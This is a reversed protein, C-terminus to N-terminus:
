GQRAGSQRRLSVEVLLCSSCQQHQILHVPARAATRGRPSPHTYSVQETTSATFTSRKLFSPKPKVNSSGSIFEPRCSRTRQCLARTSLWPALFVLGIAETTSFARPASSRGLLRSLDLAAKQGSYIHVMQTNIV